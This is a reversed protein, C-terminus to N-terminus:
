TERSSAVCVLFFIWLNRPNCLNLTLPALDLKTTGLSGLM